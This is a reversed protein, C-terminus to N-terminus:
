STRKIRYIKLRSNASTFALVPVQFGRKQNTEASGAVDPRLVRNLGDTTKLNDTCTHLDSVHYRPSTCTCQEVGIRTARIQQGIPRYGAASLREPRSDLSSCKGRVILVQVFSELSQSQKKGGM